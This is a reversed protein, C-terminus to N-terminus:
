LCGLGKLATRVEERDDFRVKVEGRIQYDEHGKGAILIVDGEGASRLAQSIAERRDPTVSYTDASMGKEIDNIIRGPDETRPNDNTIIVMDCLDSAVRGMVPRKSRDRDGGCGFVCILKNKVLPKLACLANALADATHAYDVFVRFPLESNGVAELRGPAAGAKELGSSVEDFGYGTCMLAAAAGLLNYVNHRGILGSRVRSRARGRWVLDFENGYASARLNEARMDAPEEMAFTVTAPGTRAILTRVKPDDANLVATGGPKLQEFILSKDRFYSDMDGHYDLHEPTINTFVACDLGIGWVRKQSLAHSSIEIVADTLGNSVMESLLSYVKFADPTTMVSPKLKDRGTKSHVTSVFGTERNLLELVSELIFVTSTKGNTGTVGYTRLRSSPDGHFASALEAATERTDRVVTLSSRLADPFGPPCQECIVARAGKGLAEAIHDHGDRKVGRLAIFVDGKSIRRSDTKLTEISPIELGAYSIM